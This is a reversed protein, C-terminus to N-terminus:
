QGILQDVPEVFLLASFEELHHIAILKVPCTAPWSNASIQEMRLLLLQGAFFSWSIPRRVADPAKAPLPLKLHPSIKEFLVPLISGELLTM